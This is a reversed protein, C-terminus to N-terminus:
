IINVAIRQLNPAIPLRPRVIAIMTASPPSATQRSGTEARAIAPPDDAVGGLDGILDVVVVEDRHRAVDTGLSRRAIIAPEHGVIEREVMQQKLQPARWQALAGQLLQEVLKFIWGRRVVVMPQGRLFKAIAEARGGAVDGRDGCPKSRLPELNVVDIRVRHQDIKGPIRSRDMASEMGSM